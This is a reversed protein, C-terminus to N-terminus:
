SSERSLYKFIVVTLEVSDVPKSMYYDCGANICKADDGPMANATVAIIPIALGEQRLARTAEYGDVNPMQIDMLILDFHESLAKQVAEAGDIAIAVEFGMRELLLKILMQNTLTDEAVLVRVKSEVGAEAESAVQCGPNSGAHLRREGAALGAM